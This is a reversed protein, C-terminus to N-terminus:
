LLNSLAHLIELKNWFRKFERNYSCQWRDNVGYRKKILKNNFFNKKISQNFALSHILIAIGSTSNILRIASGDIVFINGYIDVDVDTPSYFEASHILGDKASSVGNGAITITSATTENISRICYFDTDAVILSGSMRDIALGTPYDFTTINRPGDIKTYSYQYLYKHTAPLLPIPFYIM